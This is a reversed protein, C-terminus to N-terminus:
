TWFSQFYKGFLECGEQIRLEYLKLDTNWSVSQATEIEDPPVCNDIKKWLMENQKKLSMTKDKPRQPIDPRNKSIQNMSWIIKDLIENWKKQYEEEEQDTLSSHLKDEPIMRCPFGNSEDKVRKLLPGIILSLAFDLDWCDHKHIVIRAKPKKHNNFPYPIDVKM